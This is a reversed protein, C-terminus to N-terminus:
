NIDGMALISYTVTIVYYNCEAAFYFDVLQSKNYLIGLTTTSVV